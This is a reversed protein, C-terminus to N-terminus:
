EGGAARRQTVFKASVESVLAIFADVDQPTTDFSTMWRAISEREDWLYFMSKRLLPEIMPPELKVFLANIEVPCVLEVGSIREIGAGLRAAMANAHLANRRWLEDTLLAEFQVAIFRMKSALQTAQKRLYGANTALAANLFVIAEGLMLGNKTGGFSVVDVGADRTIAGLSCDLAAAANSLRAGDVHVYMNRAHAFDALAAIEEPRYLTGWETPQTIAIVRPVTHHVGRNEGIHQAIAAPTIKGNVSPVPVLKGGFFKQPAACEDAWIHACDACYVAEFSRALSAIGVVNAGTGGFTFYIETGAGFERRLAACASATYADNGYATVYGHNAREIARLIDPHIGSANDSAFYLLDVITSV